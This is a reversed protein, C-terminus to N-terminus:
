VGWTADTEGNVYVFEKRVEIVSSCRYFPPPPQLEFGPCQFKTTDTAARTDVIHVISHFRVDM